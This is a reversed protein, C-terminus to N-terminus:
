SRISSSLTKTNDDDCSHLLLRGAQRISWATLEECMEQYLVSLDVTGVSLNLMFELKDFEFSKKSVRNALDGAAGREDGHVADEPGGVGCAM